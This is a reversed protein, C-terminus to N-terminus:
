ESSESETVDITVTETIEVVPKFKRMPRASLPTHGLEQAKAMAEEESSVGIIKFEEDQGELKVLWTKSTRQKKM